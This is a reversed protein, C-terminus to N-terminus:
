RGPAASSGQRGPRSRRCLITRSPSARGRERHKLWYASFEVGQQPLGTPGFPHIYSHEPRTWHKFEIGLKFSAHTKRILENEDIGLLRIVDIIPPITAEGVGITGIEASEILCIRSDKLFRSLIAATMWGATGGGVIAISRIRDVPV